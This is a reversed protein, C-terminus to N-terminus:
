SGMSFNDKFFVLAEYLPIEKIPKVLVYNAGAKVFAERTEDFGDATCAIIPTTIAMEGRILKTAAIGDMNPMQNDMMILDFSRERLTSLAAVGDKVWEVQIGYKECFAKAIFANTKNDEVLLMGLPRDFLLVSNKEDLKTKLELEKETLKMPINLEFNTGVNETSEVHITGGLMDVLLKVISLGLGSGGYERISTRESQIFPDFVNDLNAESIGIGSDRVQIFLEVQRARIKNLSFVVDIRGEHTFKVANSLLNFLIQNLRVQDSIVNTDAPINNLVYLRIEKDECLPSYIKDISNVLSSLAFPNNEIKLKGQEIKSFDLIDNLVALLHEGSQCLVDIKDSQEESHRSKKLLQSIGLIGNLPTRIEHSIRAMFDARASASKEAEVRALNSQKEAEVLSTIDLGQGIITHIEDDLSVPSLNWRFVTRGIPINIGTLVAGTAVMKLQDIIRKQFGLFSGDMNFGEAQFAKEAAPNMRILTGEGDWVVIPSLAFNFLDQFLKEKELLESFTHELTHGINDFESVISGEFKSVKREDRAIQAYNMLSELESTIRKQVLFKALLVTAVISLFSFILSIKFNNELFLFSQTDQLFYVSIPSTIGEIKLKTHNAVSHSNYPISSRKSERIRILLDRDLKLTSAVPVDNALLVVEETNSVTKLNEVLAYNNNLVVAIFLQGLVEGNSSKVIPMRRVLLHRNGRAIELVAFHWSDSYAINHVLKKMQNRSVGFFPANGDDWFLKQSKTVFRFDPTNKLDAQDILSFYNDIRLKDDREVYQNFTVSRSHSNQNSRMTGLKYDVLNQLLASTQIVNREVEQTVATSSFQYSFGLLLAILLSFVIFLLRVTLNAMSRPHRFRFDFKM